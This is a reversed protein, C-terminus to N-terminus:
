GQRVLAGSFSNGASAISNFSIGTPGSSILGLVEVYDTSGNFYILGSVSVSGDTIAPMALFNRLYIDGGNKQFKIAASTLTGGTCKPSISANLQYYGEINPTFKGGSFCNNTDFLEANFNVKNWGNNPVAQDASLYASFAPGNGNMQYPSLAKITKATADIQLADEAATGLTVKNGTADATIKATM